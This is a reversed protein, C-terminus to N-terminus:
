NPVRQLVATNQTTVGKYRSYFFALTSFTDMLLDLPSRDLDPTNM